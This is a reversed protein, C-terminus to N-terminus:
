ICEVMKCINIISHVTKEMTQISCFEHPGHFNIGGAFINPCPLGRLSLQAGDTGGRIPKVIPNVGAAKIAEIAINVVYDPVYEKMNYYQDVIEATAIEGYKKNIVDVKDLIIQKRKEFLERNHDRIIYNLTAQECEASISLLHYVIM